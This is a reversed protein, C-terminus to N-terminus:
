RNPITAVTALRITLRIAKSPRNVVMHTVPIGVLTGMLSGVLRDVLRIAMHRIGMMRIGQSIDVMRIGALHNIGTGMQIALHTSLSQHPTLCRHATTLNQHTILSQHSTAPNQHPTILSQYTTPSRYRSM